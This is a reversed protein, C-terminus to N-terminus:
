KWGLWSGIWGTVSWSSSEEGSQSSQEESLPEASAHAISESGGSRTGLGFKFTPIAQGIRFGSPGRQMTVRERERKEEELLREQNARFTELIKHEGQSKYFDLM